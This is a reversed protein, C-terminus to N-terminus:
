EVRWGRYDAPSLWPPIIRYVSEETWTIKYSVGSTNSIVDKIAQIINLAAQKLTAYKKYPIKKHKVTLLAYLQESVQNLKRILDDLIEIKDILKSSLVHPSLNDSHVSRRLYEAISPIIFDQPQWKSHEAFLQFSFGVRLHAELPLAINLLDLSLWTISHRQPDFETPVEQDLM